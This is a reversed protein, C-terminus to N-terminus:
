TPPSRACSISVAARVMVDALFVSVQTVRSSYRDVTFAISREIQERLEDSWKISGARVSVKM